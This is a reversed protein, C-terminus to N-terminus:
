CSAEEVSSTGDPVVFKHRITTIDCISTPCSPNWWLENMIIDKDLYIPQEHKNLTTFGMWSNYEDKQLECSLNCLNECQFAKIFNEFQDKKYMMQTIVSINAGCIVEECESTKETWKIEDSQSSTPYNLYLDEKNSNTVKSRAANHNWPVIPGPIPICTLNLPNECRSSSGRLLLVSSSSLFDVVNDDSDCFGAGTQAFSKCKQNTPCVSNTWTDEKGECFGNSGIQKCQGCRRHGAIPGVTPVSHHSPLLFSPSILIVSRAVDDDDALVFNSYM